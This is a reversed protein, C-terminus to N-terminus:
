RRQMTSRAQNSPVLQQFQQLKGVLLSKRPEAPTEPEADQAKELSAPSTVSTQNSPPEETPQPPAPLDIGRNARASRPRSVPPLPTAAATDCDLSRKLTARNNDTSSPQRTLLPRKVVTTEDDAPDEGKLEVDTDIVLSPVRQERKM